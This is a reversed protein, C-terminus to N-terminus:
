ELTPPPFRTALLGVIRPVGGRLINQCRGKPNCYTKLISLKTVFINLHPVISKDKIEKRIRKLTVSVDTVKWM